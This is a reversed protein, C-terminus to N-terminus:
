VGSCLANCVVDLHCEVNCNRVSILILRLVFTGASIISTSFVLTLVTDNKIYESGEIGSYDKAIIASAAWTIVLYPTLIYRLFLFM